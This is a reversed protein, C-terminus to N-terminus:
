RLKDSLRQLTNAVEERAANVRKAVHEVAQSSRGRLEQLKEEAARRVPQLREVEREVQQRLDVRASRARAMLRQLDLDFARLQAEFQEFPGDQAPRQEALMRDIQAEAELWDGTANGPAFGRQQALYYAAEEIMRHRQEASIDARQTPSM